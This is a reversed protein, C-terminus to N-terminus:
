EVAPDGSGELLRGRILQSAENLERLADLSELSVQFYTRQVTLLDLYGIEGAEYGETALDLNEQARPLVETRLADALVRASQYRGFVVALRRRLTQETAELRRQAATLEARARGIGGQNRNHIPIPMGIQVSTIADSGADDYQVSVQATVDQVALSEQYAVNWRAREVAAVRAAIEPSLALLEAEATEWALDAILEERSADLPRPTDAPLATLAALRRWSALRRQEARARAAVTRRNEIQAQLADTRLGEGAERLQESTDVAKVSVESLRETLEVELQALYADYYATRADTMVRQREVALEQELRRAERVAVASAYGLKGGRVFRQSVYAGQQGARGDAGIENAVYGATPNPKLGNQLAQWRAARVRAEISALSPSAGVALSEAEAVSLGEAAPLAQVSEVNPLRLPLAETPPEAVAGCSAMALVIAASQLLPHRM